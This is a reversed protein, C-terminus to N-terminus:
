NALTPSSEIIRLLGGRWCFVGYLRGYSRMRRIRQLREFLRGKVSVRSRRKLGRVFYVRQEVSSDGKVIGRQEERQVSTRRKPGRVFYVRQEVSSDGKVIGKLSM